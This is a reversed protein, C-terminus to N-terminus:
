VAVGAERLRFFEQESSRPIAYFLEFWPRREGALWPGRIEGRAPDAKQPNRTPPNPPTTLAAAGEAYRATGAVRFTVGPIQGPDM